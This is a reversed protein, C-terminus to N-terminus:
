TVVPASALIKDAYNPPSDLLPLDICTPGSFGGAAYLVDPNSRLRIEYLDYTGTPATTAGSSWARLVLNLSFAYFEIRLRWMGQTPDYCLTAGGVTVFDGPQTLPDGEDDVCGSADTEATTLYPCYCDGRQYGSDAALTEAYSVDCDYGGGVYVSGDCTEGYELVQATMSWAVAYSSALPSYDPPDDEWNAETVPCSAAPPYVDCDNILKGGTADTQRLLKGTAVSYRLKGM